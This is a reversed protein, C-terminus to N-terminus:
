KGLSVIIMYDFNKVPFILVWISMIFLWPKFLNNKNLTNLLIYNPGGWTYDVGASQM